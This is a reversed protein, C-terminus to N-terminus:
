EREGEPISKFGIIGTMSKFPHMIYSDDLEIGTRSAGPVFEFIERQLELPVDGYGPAFRFTQCNLKLSKQYINTVEEVYASGAADILVAKAYDERDRLDAAKKDVASGITSILICVSDSGGKDFMRTLSPFNLNVPCDSIKFYGVAFSPRAIRKIEDLARDVLELQSDDATGKFNLYSLTRQRLQGADSNM